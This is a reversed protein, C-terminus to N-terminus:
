RSFVEAAMLLVGSCSAGIAAAAAARGLLGAPATDSWDSRRSDLQVQRAVFGCGAVIGAVVLWAGATIV